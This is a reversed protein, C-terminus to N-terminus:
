REEEPLENYITKVVALLQEQLLKEGKLKMFIKLGNIEEKPHIANANSGKAFNLSLKPKDQANTTGSTPPKTALNLKPRQESDIQDTKSGLKIGGLSLVPRQESDKQDSKPGLKLGLKLGQSPNSNNEEQNRFSSTGPNNGGFPSKPTNLALSM